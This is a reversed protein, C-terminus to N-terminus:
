VDYKNNMNLAKKIKRSKLIMGGGISCLIIGAVLNTMKQVFTESFIMAVIVLIGFFLIFMGLANNIQASKLKNQKDKTNLSSM